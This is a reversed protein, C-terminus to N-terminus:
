ILTEGDGINYSQVYTKKRFSKFDLVLRYASRLVMSILLIPYPLFIFRLPIRMISTVAPLRVLYRISGPLAISFFVIVVVSSIMRLINQGKSDLRTYLLDFVVHDEKRYATCAGLLGVVVFANVSLEFTWNQPNRLIYRCVVNTLFALFLVVFVAIPLHVEIFDAFWRFIKKVVGM